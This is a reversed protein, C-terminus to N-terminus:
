QLPGIVYRKGARRRASRLRVHHRCSFAKQHDILWSNMIIEARAKELHLRARSWEAPRESKLFAHFGQLVHAVFKWELVDCDLQLTMAACERGLDDYNIKSISYNAM